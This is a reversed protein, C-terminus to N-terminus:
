EILVKNVWLKENSRFRIIFIGASLERQKLLTSYANVEINRTSILKGTSSIVELQGEEVYEPFNLQMANNNISILMSGSSQRDEYNQVMISTFTFSGDTDIQKIRYYSKGLIPTNDYFIYNNIDESNGAAVVDGIGTFNFGNLSREISFSASNREAATAWKVQVRKNEYDAKTSNNIFEVPLLGTCVCRTSGTVSPTSNPDTTNCLDVDGSFANTNNLNISGFSIGECGSSSGLGSVSNASNVTLTGSITIYTGDLKLEGGSNVTLNGGITVGGDLNADAGNNIIFDNTIDVTGSTNLNNFDGGNVTLSTLQLDGYNNFNGNSNLSIGSITGFNNVTSNSSNINLSGTYTISESICLETNSNGDVSVSGTFSGSGVICVVENNSATYNGSDPARVIEDCSSCSSGGDLTCSNIDNATCGFIGNGTNVFNGDSGTYNICGTGDIESSSLSELKDTVNICRANITLDSSDDTKLHEVEVTAGLEILGDGGSNFFLEKTDSLTGSSSITLFSNSDKMEIKKGEMDLSGNITLDNGNEFGFDSAGDNIVNFSAPIIVNDSSPDPESGCDWNDGDTWSTGDGGGTFTCDAAKLNIGNFILLIFFFLNLFYINSM